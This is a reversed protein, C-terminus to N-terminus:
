YVGPVQYPNFVRQMVGCLIRIHQVLEPHTHVVEETSNGNLIYASVGWGTGYGATCLMLCVLIVTGGVYINVAATRDCVLKGVIIYQGNVAIGVFHTHKAHQDGYGLNNQDM